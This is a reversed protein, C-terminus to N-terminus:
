RKGGIIRKTILADLLVTMISIFIAIFFPVIWGEVIFKDGMLLSTLKLIIVNINYVYLIM